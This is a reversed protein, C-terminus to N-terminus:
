SQTDPALVTLETRTKTPREYILPEDAETLEDQFSPPTLVLQKIGGADFAVLARHGAMEILSVSRGPGLSLTEIVRSRSGPTPLLGRQRQWRRVGLAALSFLCLAIVIWAVARSLVQMPSSEISVEAGREGVPAAPGNSKAEDRLDLFMGTEASSKLPVSIEAPKQESANSPTPQLESVAASESFETLVKTAAASGTSATESKPEWATQEIASSHEDRESTMSGGANEIKSQSTRLLDSHQDSYTRTRPAAAEFSEAEEDVNSVAQSSTRDTSPSGNVSTTSRSSRVASSSPQTNRRSVSGSDGSSVQSQPTRPQSHEIGAQQELFGRLKPNIASPTNTSTASRKRFQGSGSQSQQGVALSPMVVSALVGAFVVLIIPSAWRAGTRRNLTQSQVSSTGSASEFPRM